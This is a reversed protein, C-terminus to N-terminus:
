NKTLALFQKRQSGSISRLAIHWWRNGRRDKESISQDFPVGNNKLWTEAFKIFDDIRGNTPVVDAAYGKCHASNTVGGVATNLLPSRYGSTITLGSGWAARLPDLITMTLASLHDVVEFTPTNDIRRNKATDSVIFEDLEFYRFKSM